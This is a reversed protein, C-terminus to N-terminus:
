MAAYKNFWDDQWSLPKQTARGKVGANKFFHTRFSVYGLSSSINKRKIYVAKMSQKIATWKWLCGKIRESTSIEKWQCPEHTYNHCPQKISAKLWLWKADKHGPTWWLSDVLKWVFSRFSSQLVWTNIFGRRPQTTDILLHRLHSIEPSDSGCLSTPVCPVNEIFSKWLDSTGELRLKWVAVM